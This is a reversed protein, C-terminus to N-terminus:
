SRLAYHSPATTIWSPDLHHVSECGMLQMTTTLELRLLALMHEVGAEGGLALGWVYPRGILVARAGLALAKAVDAGRRVGGDLLIATEDGVAAVIEPLADLSAPAGELQRGGHNSVIIGECGADVARRADEATLLGKVLLPRKWNERIWALEDWSPSASEEGSAAKALSLAVGNATADATNALDFPMGDKVYRWAWLPRPLLQPAIRVANRVNVRMSYSFGNRFDKERRGSVTTDVTVAIATYGAAGARHVLSEMGARGGYRYLQFWKPGASQQALEELTCMSASSAVHITGAAAAARAAGVDGEPHVLKMGGCPATLVPMSIAEGFLTTALEPEPVWVAMRPRFRLEKFADVNRHMTVEDEAGGDVYEFVGRPLTWRAYRRADDYNLVRALRARQLRSLSV